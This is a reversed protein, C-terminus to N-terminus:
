KSNRWDRVTTAAAMSVLLGWGFSGVFLVGLKVAHWEGILILVPITARLIKFLLGDLKFEDPMSVISVVLAAFIWSNM